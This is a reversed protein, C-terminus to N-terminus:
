GRTHGRPKSKVTNVSELVSVMRRTCSHHCELLGVQVVTRSWWFCCDRPSIDWSAKKGITVCECPDPTAGQKGPPNNSPWIRVVQVCRHSIEGRLFRCNVPQVCIAKHGKLFVPGSVEVPKYQLWLTANRLVVERLYEPLCRTPIAGRLTVLKNSPALSLSFM